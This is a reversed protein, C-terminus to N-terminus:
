VCFRLGTADRRWGARRAANLLALTPDTFNLSCVCGNGRGSGCGDDLAKRLLADSESCKIGAAFRTKVGHEDVKHRLCFRGRALLCGVGCGHAHHVRAAEVGGVALM